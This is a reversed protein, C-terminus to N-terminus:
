GFGRQRGSYGPTYGVTGAALESDDHLALCFDPRPFRTFLGDALMAQAGGGAEEAPQAIMVLTGHWADRLQALLRATGVLCTMHFDHGCAHMVPVENGQADKATVTSAYPLGTQEKVPLADMDARVLVTPGSGNRLVGVVGHKGVGTTVEFGAKRLEEAMRAASQQEHLSLEPHAHLHKYLEFLSPYEQQLRSQVQERAPPSSQALGCPSLLCALVLALSQARRLKMAPHAIDTSLDLDFVQYHTRSMGLREYSRHARSNEAHVYLRLAPVGKQERALNKVHEFLRRFIGQARFEPKVYVSQIWWLNGNRWDSWEYTIMLQGAVAGDVEAVYYVGKAPDELLAGVGAQVRAPDLRLGETEEALRLNFAAIVPGDAPVAQRITIEMGSEVVRGRRILGERAVGDAFM